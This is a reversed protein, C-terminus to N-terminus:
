FRYGIRFILQRNGQEPVNRINISPEQAYYKKDFLNFVTLSMELNSIFECFRLTTNFIAYDGVPDLSVYEIQKSARNYDKFKEVKSRYLMSANFNFYSWFGWNIGANLKHPSVDIHNYSYTTSDSNQDTNRSLTYSYNFFTYLRPTIFWKHELEIGTALNEGLNRNISTHGVDTTIQKTAYIMDKMENRFVNLQTTTTKTKYVLSAELTEIREPKLKDNGLAFGNTQYQQSANPSRYAKGYMAKIHLNEGLQYVFSLRPSLVAGIQSEIDCRAGLTVGLKPIPYYIDQVYVAANSYQHGNDVVWGKEWRIQNNHGIGKYGSPSVTTDLPFNSDIYIDKAGHIDAQLGVFLDNRRFLHINSELEAGYLYEDWFPTVYAGMNGASPKIIQLDEVHFSNQGYTRAHISFHDNFPHNFEILYNSHRQRVEGGRQWDGMKINAFSGTIRFDKYNLEGNIIQNKHDVTWRDQSNPYTANSGETNVLYASLHFDLQNKSIGYSLRETFTNFTGIEQKVKLGSDNRGNKTIVNIVASFANRGYVASGPGRIIEIRSVNELDLKYGNMDADGYFIDNIPRGNEMLLLKCPFRPDKVGRVGILAAGSTNRTIEFGPVMQLVDILERAGMNRIESATVVSVISPADDLGQETKTAIRVKLNLLEDLSMDFIKSLQDIKTTDQANTKQAIFILFVWLIFYRTKM